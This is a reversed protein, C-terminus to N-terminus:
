IKKFCVNLIGDPNCRLAETAYVDIRLNGRENTRDLMSDTFAFFCPLFHVFEFKISIFLSFMTLIADYPRWLM